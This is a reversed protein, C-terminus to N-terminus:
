SDKNLAMLSHSQIEANKSRHFMNGEQLKKFANRPTYEMARTISEKLGYLFLDCLREQEFMTPIECLM